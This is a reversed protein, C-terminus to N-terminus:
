NFSFVKLILMIGLSALFIIPAAMFGMGFGIGLGQKFVIQKNRVGKVRKFENCVSDLDYSM